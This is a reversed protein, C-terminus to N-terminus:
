DRPPPPATGAALEMAVAIENRDRRGLKPQGASLTVLAHAFGIPTDTEPDPVVDCGRSRWWEPRSRYVLAPKDDILAAADFGAAALLDERSVSLGDPDFSLASLAPIFRRFDAHWELQTTLVRRLLPEGDAVLDDIGM